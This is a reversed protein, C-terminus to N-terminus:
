LDSVLVQYCDNGTLCCEKLFDGIADMENKYRDTAALVEEPPKLGEKMWELM